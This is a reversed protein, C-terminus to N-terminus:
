NEKKEKLEKFYETALKDIKLTFEYRKVQLLNHIVSMVYDYEQLQKMCNEKDCTNELKDLKYFLDILKDDTKM